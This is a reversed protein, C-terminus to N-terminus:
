YTNGEGHPMMWFDLDPGSWLSGDADNNWDAVFNFPMPITLPDWVMGDCKPNVQSEQAQSWNIESQKFENGSAEATPVEKGSLNGSDILGSTSRGSFSRPQEERLTLYGQDRIQRVIKTFLLFIWGSVPWTSKLERLAIMSLRIKITGLQERMVDGSCIDIAHMGMAAFLAPVIHIPCQQIRRLSLLEEVIRVLQSAAKM